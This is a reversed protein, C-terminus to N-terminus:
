TVNTITAPPREPTPSEASPLPQLFTLVLVALGVIVVLPVLVLLLKTAPSARAFRDSWSTPEEYPLSTYDVPQSLEPPPLVEDRGARRRRVLVPIAILLLLIAVVIAIVLPNQLADVLM